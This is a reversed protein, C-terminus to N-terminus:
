FVSIAYYPFRRVHGCYMAKEQVHREEVCAPGTYDRLQLQARQVPTKAFYANVAQLCERYTADDLDKVQQAGHKAAEYWIRDRSYYMFDRNQDCIATRSLRNHLDEESIVNGFRGFPLFPAHKLCCVAISPM